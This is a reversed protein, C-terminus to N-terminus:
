RNRGLKFTLSVNLPMVMVAVGRQTQDGFVTKSERHLPVTMAPTWTIDVRRTSLSLPVGLEAHSYRGSPVDVAFAVMGGAFLSLRRRVKWAYGTTTQVSLPVGGTPFLLAVGVAASTRLGGTDFSRSPDWYWQAGAFLGVPEHMWAYDREVDGGRPVTTSRLLLKSSVGVVPEVSPAGTPETALLLLALVNM